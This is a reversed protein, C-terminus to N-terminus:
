TRLRAISRSLNSRAADEYRLYFLATSFIRPRALMEELIARRKRRFVFESVWGYEQRIQREYEDFRAPAAGLISLDTDVLVQADIGAPEAAHRTFMILSRVRDAAERGLGAALASSRAWEASRAENDSRRVDYIADHFWLALEVEGAREASPRLDRFQAFCENLHRVTHYFRHAESYRAILEEYVFRLEPTDAVGLARWTELWRGTTTM